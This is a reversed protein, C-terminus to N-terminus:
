QWSYKTLHGELMLDRFGTQRLAEYLIIAVSNSLNLSRLSGRMPIRICKDKNDKLLEEPLGATEKGFIIFSGDPYNIDAYTNVAKTTAFFLSKSSYKNMFDDLSDHYEIDLEGWYDLGSRKLYKDEVSFGLPKILHLKSGTVACTRAINGTNQPIEPEILVINFSM